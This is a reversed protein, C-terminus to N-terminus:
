GRPPRPDPANQWNKPASVLPAAEFAALAAAPLHAVPAPLVAVHATAGFIQAEDGCTGTIALEPKKLDERDPNCIPCVCDSHRADCHCHHAEPGTAISAFAPLTGGLSVPLLLVFTVLRLM